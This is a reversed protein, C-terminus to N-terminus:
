IKNNIEKDPNMIDKIILYIVCSWSIIGLVSTFVVLKPNCFDKFVFILISVFTIIIFPIINFKM